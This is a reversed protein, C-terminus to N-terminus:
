ADPTRRRLSSLLAVAAVAFVGAILGLLAWMAMNRGKRDAIWACLAACAIGVALSALELQALTHSSM